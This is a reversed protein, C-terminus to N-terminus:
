KQWPMKKPEATTTTTAPATREPAPTSQQQPPKAAGNPALKYAKIEDREPEKKNRGIKVVLRKGLLEDTDTIMGGGCAKCLTAFERQGISEAQENSHRLNYWCFIKRGTYDPGVIDFQINAGIGQGNNTERVEAKEIEVHYDGDPLPTNDRADEYQSPDFAGGFAQSLNGM